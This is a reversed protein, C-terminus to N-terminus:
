CGNLEKTRPTERLKQRLARYDEAQAAIVAIGLDEWNREIAATAEAEAFESLKGSERMVNAIAKGATPDSYHECNRWIM